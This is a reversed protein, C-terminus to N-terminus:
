LESLGLSYKLAADVEEMRADSVSGIDRKIRHEISVTRFIVERQLGVV